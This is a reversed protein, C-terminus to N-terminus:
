RSRARYGYRLLLPWTLTNVAVRDSRKMRTKWEDDLRIGITGTQFRNPNGVVTHQIGLEVSHDAMFPLQQPTEQVLNAIRRITQQPQDVFDEYRLNMYKAGTKRALVEMSINWVDWLLSSITPKLRPFYTGSALDFKKRQWSYAVARADRILHVIHLDIVPILGLVYAYSPSKSSDIIVNAGSVDRMAQYLKESHALFGQLRNRFITEGGRMLMIPVHRVRTGSRRLRLMEQADVKNWGGYAKQFIAEWVECESFKNGCGCLGNQILCRDWILHLEGAHFFGDLEGLVNGLITSGSRRSGAIYLVKIKDM